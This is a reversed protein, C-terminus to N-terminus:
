HTKSHPNGFRHLLFPTMADEVRFDIPTTAQYDFYSVRSTKSMLQLCRFTIGKIM